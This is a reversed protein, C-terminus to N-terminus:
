SDKGHDDRQTRPKPRRPRHMQKKAQKSVGPKSDTRPKYPRRPRGKGRPARSPRQKFGSSKRVEDANKKSSFIIVRKRDGEGVTLTRLGRDKEVHRHIIRREGATMPELTLTEETKKVKNIQALYRNLFQSERRKRYDDADIYVRQYEKSNEFTRNILYQITELMSGNKGILFGTEVVGEVALYLTKGETKCDINTFSIGMRDLLTETYLRIRDAESPLKFRVVATKNAFLGFFGRSPKQLIEYHLEHDRIKHERRFQRIIEEVSHGSRDITTM